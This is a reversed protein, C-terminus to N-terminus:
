ACWKDIATYAEAIEPDNIFEILASDAAVHDAELDGTVCSKLKDILAERTMPKILPLSITM